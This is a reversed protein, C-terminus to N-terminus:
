REARSCCEDDDRRGLVANAIYNDPVASACLSKNGESAVRTTFLHARLLYRSTKMESFPVLNVLTPCAVCVHILWHLWVIM